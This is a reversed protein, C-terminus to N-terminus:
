SASRTPQRATLSWFWLASAYATLALTSVIAALSWHFLLVGSLVVAFGIFTAACSAFSLNPRAMNRSLRWICWCAVAIGLVGLAFSGLIVVVVSNM